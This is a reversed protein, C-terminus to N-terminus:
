WPFLTWGPIRKATPYFNLQLMPLWKDLYSIVIVELSANEGSKVDHRRIFPNREQGGTEDRQVNIARLCTFETPSPGMFEQIFRWWRRFGRVPPGLPGKRFNTTKPIIISPIPRWTRTQADGFTRWGKRKWVNWKDKRSSYIAKWSVRSVNAGRNSVEPYLMHHPYQVWTEYALYIAMYPMRLRKRRLPFSTSM